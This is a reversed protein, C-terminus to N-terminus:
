LKGAFAYAAVWAALTLALAAAVVVIGTRNLTKMEFGFGIDWALHRIGNALHYFFAFTMAFLVLRGFWSAFFVNARAFADPGYAAAALWYALLVAGVALGVGTLRHLISLTSTIQPRYIQLHPSLPRQGSAM